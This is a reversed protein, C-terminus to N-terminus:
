KEIGPIFASKIYRVHPERGKPALVLAYDFRVQCQHYEPHLRLYHEAALTIYRRKKADILTDVDRLLYEASRAKVEIFCVTDGELAILDLELHHLRFNQALIVFGEERLLDAVLSEVHLGEYLHGAGEGM